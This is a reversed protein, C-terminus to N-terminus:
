PAPPSPPPPPLLEPHALLYAKWEDPSIRGDANTDLATIMAAIEAPSLVRDNNTDFARLLFHVFCPAPPLPQPLPFPPFPPEVPALAATFEALSIKGDADKDLHAIMATVQDATIRPILLLETSDLFGDDNTDLENFRATRETKIKAAIADRAAQKEADSLKGDGDTDWPNKVGPRPPRAERTAKEYALREEVSLKGDGNLDYTKLFDPLEGTGFPKRTPATQAQAKTAAVGLLMAAALLTSTTKKM